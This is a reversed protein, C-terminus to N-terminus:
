RVFINLLKHIIHKKKSRNEIPIYKKVMERNLASKNNNIPFKSFFLELDKARTRYSHKNIVLQHGTEAIRRRKEPHDLYFSIANTLADAGEVEVLHIGSIFPSEKSLPESLIFGGCGMVEYIRTETDLFDSSHLNLIIKARNILRSMERGFVRKRVIKHKENISDLLNERRKMPSGVFLVDIDKELLPMPKHLEDDFGSLLVSVRDPLIWKNDILTQKCALSRVFIHDFLGSKLLHNHDSQRSILESAWFFKPRNIAKVLELPFYDGRQLFFYDFDETTLFAQSLHFRNKRYDICHTKVGNKLFGKNIFYEAGWGSNLEIVNAYLIKM